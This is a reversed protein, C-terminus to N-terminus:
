SVQPLTLQLPGVHPLMYPTSRFCTPIQSKYEGTDFDVFDYIGICDKPTDGFQVQDSKNAKAYLAPLEFGESVAVPWLQWQETLNSTYFKAARRSFAASSYSVWDSLLWGQASVNGCVAADSMQLDVYPLFVTSRVTDCTQVYMIAALLGTFAITIFGVVLALLLPSEFRFFRTNVVSVYASATLYTVNGPVCGLTPPDQKTDAPKADAAHDPTMNTTM